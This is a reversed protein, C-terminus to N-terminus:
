GCPQLRLELRRLARWSSRFPLIAKTLPVECRLWQSTICGVIAAGSFLAAVAAIGWGFREGTAVRLSSGICFRRHWLLIHRHACRLSYPVPLHFALMATYHMSWIATAMALTSAILWNRRPHGESRRVQDALDLAVYSGLIPICVSLAVTLPDYHGTLVVGQPNMRRVKSSM